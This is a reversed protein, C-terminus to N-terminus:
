TKLMDYDGVGGISDIMDGFLLCFGPLACGFLSSSIFAIYWIVKDTCDANRWIM